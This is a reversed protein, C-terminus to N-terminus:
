QCDAPECPFTLDWVWSHTSEHIYHNVTGLENQWTVPRIPSRCWAWTASNIKVKKTRKLLVDSENTKTMPIKARNMRTERFYSGHSSWVRRVHLQLACFIYLMVWIFFFFFFMIAFCVRNLYFYDILSSPFRGDLCIFAGILLLSIQYSFFVKVKENITSPYQFHM